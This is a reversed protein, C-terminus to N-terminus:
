EANGTPETYDCPDKLTSFPASSGTDCHPSTLFIQSAMTAKSSPSWTGLIHAVKLFQYHCTSLNHGLVELLLYLRIPM